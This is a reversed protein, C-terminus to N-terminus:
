QTNHESTVRACYSGSPAWSTTSLAKDHAVIEGEGERSYLINLFFFSVNLTVAVCKWFQWTECKLPCVDSHENLRSRGLHIALCQCRETILWSTVSTNTAEVWQKDRWFTQSEVSSSVEPCWLCLEAEHWQTRGDGCIAWCLWAVWVCVNKTSLWIKECTVSRWLFIHKVCFPPCDSFQTVTNDHQCSEKFLFM